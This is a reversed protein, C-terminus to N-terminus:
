RVVVLVLYLTSSSVVLIIVVAQLLTFSFWSLELRGEASAELRRELGRPRFEEGIPEGGDGRGVRFGFSARRERRRRIWEEDHADREGAGGSVGERM